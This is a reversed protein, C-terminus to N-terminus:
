SPPVVRSSRERSDVCELLIESIQTLLQADANGFQMTLLERVYPVVSYKVIQRLNKESLPKDLRESVEDDEGTRQLMFLAHGIHQEVPIGHEELLGNCRQLASADFGLPNNGPRALWSKLTDLQPHLNLWFFRRQLALDLRGISRDASNMTGIIFVNSPFVFRRGSLLPITADRYELLQLLEGLVAATDCRNIEDLVLVHRAKASYETLRSIWELFFGLRSEFSLAGTISTPKLGEFFEEYGWNAHMYLTEWCGQPQGSRQRAFYRAFQRAIYTKSTGPPGVLVVQRKAWLAEEMECLFWEPLATIQALESITVPATEDIDGAEEADSVRTPALATAAAWRGTMAADFFPWAWVFYRGVDDVITESHEPLTSLGYERVILLDVLTDTAGVLGTIAIREAFQRPTLTEERDSYTLRVITDQPSQRVYDAVSAPNTSIASVLKDLYEDCYAGMALGYRWLREGGLFRVFLQVSRTKSGAVPDYFAFWYHDHYGGKGYDNKKLISLHRKGGAVAPDLRQIYQTRLAEVIARSPERLLNEYSRKNADHWASDTTHTALDILFAVTKDNYLPIPEDESDDVAASDEADTTEALGPDHFPENSDRREQKITDDTKIAELLKAREMETLSVRIYYPAFSPSDAVNKLRHEDASIEVSRSNGRLHMPLKQFAEFAIPEPLAWADLTVSELNWHLLLYAVPKDRATEHMQQIVANQATSWHHDAVRSNRLAFVGGRWEFTTHRIHEPIAGTQALRHCLLSTMIRGANRMRSDDIALEPVSTPAVRLSSLIQEVFTETTMHTIKAVVAAGHSCVSWKV